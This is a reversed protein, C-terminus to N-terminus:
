ELSGEDSLSVPYDVDTATAACRRDRKRLSYPGFTMHDANVDGGWHKGTSALAGVSSQGQVENKCVGRHMREFGTAGIHHCGPEADHKEGLRHNREHIYPLRQPRATAEHESTPL